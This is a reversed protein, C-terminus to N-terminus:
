YPTKAPWFRAAQWKKLSAGKPAKKIDLHHMPKM